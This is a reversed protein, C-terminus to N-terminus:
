FESKFSVSVVNNRYDYTDINSLRKRCEYSVDAELWERVFWNLGVGFEWIDDERAESSGDNKPYEHLQYVLELLAKTKGTLRQTLYAALRSREYYNETTFTSEKASRDAIFNLKTAKSFRQTLDMYLVAEDWDKRSKYKRSQFGLKVAGELKSTLNGRLGALLEDYDGERTSDDDYQIEGHSYEILAKLKPQVLYTATIDFEHENYDSTNSAWQYEYDINEYQVEFGTHAFNGGFAATACNKNYDTLDEVYTLAETIQNFEESLKLFFKAGQLSLDAYFNNNQKNEDELRAYSILDAFYGISFLDNGFPVELKIEPTITNVFDDKTDSAVLYINDEYRQEIKISPELKCPGLEISAYSLCPLILALFVPTLSILYKLKKKLQKWLSKRERLKKLMYEIKSVIVSADNQKVKTFHAGIEFKDKDADEARVVKAVAKVPEPLGPFNIELELESGVSLQSTTKFVIGNGSINKVSAVRHREAESKKARYKVLHHAKVRPYRRTDLKKKRMVFFFGPRQM